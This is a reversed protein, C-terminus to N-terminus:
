IKLKVNLELPPTYWNGGTKLETIDIGYDTCNERTLRMPKARYYTIREICAKLLRNKQQVPMESDELARLADKFQFLKEEYNIKQPATHYAQQLTSNIAQREATIKDKLQKFIHEPMDNDPSTKEDWLRIEKEDLEKLKKELSHILKEHAIANNAEGNKLKIEFDNICQNLIYKINEIVENYTSSGTGCHVQDECLLRPECRKSGDTNKYIKLSMARGCQCFLLGALPNRIKTSAKARHNRGQKAQAANFLDESIIASHKGDYILCDAEKARPRTMIVESDEVVPVVKRENWIVKGIYHPNKLMDKIASPSWHMGKTPAIGLSDLHHAINTPGMDDKVYMEFIMRVVDAQEKNETLTPCKKKGEMVWSKDYGYPPVSGIYNGQSVSLLRGRKLIKKTYELYENGRKLEREFSDSDYEDQLNYIRQPTIVITNSYKILKMIKGVDELDGRSLRQPEVCLIAKVRPSEIRRLVEKIEPRDAITEGSVVERFINAEPVPAGLNKVAWDELISYHNLLVEEVSKLPDDSRSKRLYEIIEDPQLNQIGYKMLEYNM